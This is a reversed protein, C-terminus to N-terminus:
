KVQWIRVTGDESASALISGNPSWALGRITATHETFKLLQRGDSMSWVQISTDNFEPELMSRGGGSALFQGDPSFAMSWIRSRHGDLAHLLQGDRLRWVYVDALESTAVTTGDRSFTVGDITNSSRNLQYTHGAQNDILQGDEIRWQQVVDNQSGAILARGDTSFTLAMVFAMGSGHQSPSGPLRRRLRADSVQWISIAADKDGNLALHQNDPSFAVAQVAYSGHAWTHLVTGDDVRWLRVTHDESVSALLQGDPSFVVKLVLSSHGDLSRLVRGNSMQRLEITGDKFGAALVQGDPGM